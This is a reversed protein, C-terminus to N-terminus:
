IKLFEKLGSHYNKNLALYMETGEPASGKGFSFLKDKQQYYVDYGLGHLFDVTKQYNPNNYDLRKISQFSEYWIVPFISGIIKEAGELVEEEAGEVDIKIFDPMVLNEQLAFDDLKAKKVKRVQKYNSGVFDKYLSTGSGALYIEVEGNDNGCAVNYVKCYQELRNLYITEQEVNNHELVPDFAYTLIRSKGLFAAMIGFYGTNSGIDYFVLRDKKALIFELIKKVLATGDKEVVGNSLIGYAIDSEDLVNGAYWFGLASKVATNGFESYKSPKYFVVKRGSIKGLFGVIVGFIKKMM